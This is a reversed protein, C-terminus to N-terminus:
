AGTKNKKIKILLLSDYVIVVLAIALCIWYGWLKDKFLNMDIHEINESPNTFVLLILAIINIFNFTNKFNKSKLVFALIFLLFATWTGFYLLYAFFMDILFGIGTYYEAEPKLIFKLIKSKQSIREIPKLKDNSEKHNITDSISALSDSRIISDCYLKYNLSDKKEIEKLRMSLISDTNTNPNVKVISDILHAIEVKQLSDAIISDKIRQDRRSITTEECGKPFFPLFFSLLVIVQLLRSIQINIKM